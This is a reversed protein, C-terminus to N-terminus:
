SRLVKVGPFRSTLHVLDDFDSTYVIGGNGAATAMVIADVLSVEDRGRRPRVQALTEGAAKVTALRLPEVIMAALIKERWDSRGRWWEGVVPMPVVIPDRQSVAMRFVKSMRSDRREIAILAGTDFVYIRRNM